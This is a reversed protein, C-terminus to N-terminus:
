WISGSLVRPWVQPLSLRELVPVIANSAISRSQHATCTLHSSYEGSILSEYWNRTLIVDRFDSSPSSRRFNQTVKIREERIFLRQTLIYGMKHSRRLVRECCGRTAAPNFCSCEVSSITKLNSSPSNSQGSPDLENQQIHLRTTVAAVSSTDPSIMYIKIKEEVLALLALLLLISGFLPKQQSNFIPLM